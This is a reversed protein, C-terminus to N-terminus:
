SIRVTQVEQGGLAAVLDLDNVPSSLSACVYHSMRSRMCIAVASCFFIAERGTVYEANAQGPYDTYALTVKITGLLVSWVVLRGIPHLESFSCALLLLGLSVDKSIRFRQVCLASCSLLCVSCVKRLPPLATTRQQERVCVPRRCCCRLCAYNSCAFPVIISPWM